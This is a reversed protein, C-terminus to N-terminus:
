IRPKGTPGQDPGVKALERLVLTQNMLVTELSYISARNLRAVERSIPDTKRSIQDTKLKLDAILDAALVELKHGTPNAQSMLIKTM